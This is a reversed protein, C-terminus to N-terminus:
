FQVTLALRSTLGLYRHNQAAYGVRMAQGSGL